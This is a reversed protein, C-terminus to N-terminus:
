GPTSARKLRDNIAKGLGSEPFKDAIILDIDMTDALRMAHFLKRAAEELDGSESLIFQHTAPIADFSSSLSITAIRV